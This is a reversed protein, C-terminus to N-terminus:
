AFKPYCAMGVVARQLQPILTLHNPGKDFSKILLNQSCLWSTSSEVYRGIMVHFTSFFTHVKALKDLMTQNKKTLNAFPNSNSAAQQILNLASQEPASNSSGAKFRKGKRVEQLILCNSIVIRFANVQALLCAPLCIVKLSAHLWRCGEKSM